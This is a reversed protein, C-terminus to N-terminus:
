AARNFEGPSVVLAARRGSQERGDRPDFDIWLLDGAEPIYPVDIRRNGPGQGNGLRPSRADSGSNRWGVYRRARLAATGAQHRDPRGGGRDRGSRGRATRDASSPGESDAAGPQQGLARDAGADRYEQEQLIYM